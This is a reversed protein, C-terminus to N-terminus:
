TTQMRRGQFFNVIALPVIAGLLTLLLMPITFAANITGIHLISSLFTGALFAGIVAVTVNILLNSNDPMIVTAMWGLVAAAILYLILNMKYVGEKLTQM